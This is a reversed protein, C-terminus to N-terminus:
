SSVRLHASTAVRVCDKVNSHRIPAFDGLAVCIVDILGSDIHGECLFVYWYLVLQQVYVFETPNESVSVGHVFQKGLATKSVVSDGRCFCCGFRLSV